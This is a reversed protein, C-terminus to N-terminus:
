DHEREYDTALALYRMALSRPRIEGRASKPSVWRIPSFIV